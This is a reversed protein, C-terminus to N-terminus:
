VRKSLKLFPPPYKVIILSFRQKNGKQEHIFSSFFRKTAFNVKERDKQLAFAKVEKYPTSPPFTRSSKKRVNNYRPLDYSVKYVKTGDKRTIKNISSM